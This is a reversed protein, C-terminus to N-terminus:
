SIKVVAYLGRPKLPVPNPLGLVLPQSYLYLRAGVPIHGYYDISEVRTLHQFLSGPENACPNYNPGSSHLLMDPLIAPAPVQHNHLSMPNAYFLGQPFVAGPRLTTRKVEFPLGHYVPLSEVILVQEVEEEEESESSDSSDTVVIKEDSPKDNGVIGSPVHCKKASKPATGGTTMRATRKCRALNAIFDELLRYQALLKPSRSLDCIYRYRQVYPPLDM